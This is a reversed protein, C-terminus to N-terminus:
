FIIIHFRNKTDVKNESNRTSELEKHLDLTEDSVIKRCSLSSGKVSGTGCLGM